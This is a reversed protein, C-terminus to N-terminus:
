YYYYTKKPEVILLLPIFHLTLISYINTKMESLLLLLGQFIHEKKTSKLFYFLIPFTEFVIIKNHSFFLTKIKWEESQHLSLYRRTKQKNTPAFKWVCIKEPVYLGHWFLRQLWVKSKKKEKKFIACEFFCCIVSAGIM